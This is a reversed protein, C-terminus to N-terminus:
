SKIEEPHGGFFSLNPRIDSRTTTGHRLQRVHFPLSDPISSRLYVVIYVRLIDSYSSAKVCFAVGSHHDCSQHKIVKSGRNPTIRGQYQHMVVPSPYVLLGNNERRKM